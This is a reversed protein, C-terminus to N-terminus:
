EAAPQIGWLEGLLRYVHPDHTKLEGRVFPFFDNTGFYSESAEAFYEMPNSLGYHRQRRGDIKVVEDYRGSDVARQHAEALQRNQYGDELFQHHYAHALEHLVMSPQHHTWKLFNRANALEVCRAKDPNMGNDRLWGTDPHYCMCAHHPDAKEVWITVKRVKALAAAPLVRQVQFLQNRLVQLTERCLGADDRLFDQHVLVRWRHIKRQAYESTPYYSPKQPSESEESFCTGPSAMSAALLAAM